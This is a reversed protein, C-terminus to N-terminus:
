LSEFYEKESIADVSVTEARRIEIDRGYFDHLRYNEGDFWVNRTYYVTQTTQDSVRFVLKDKRVMPHPHLLSGGACGASFLGALAASFIIVWTLATVLLRRRLTNRINSPRM